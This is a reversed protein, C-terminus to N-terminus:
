ERNCVPRAGWRTAYEWLLKREFYRIFLSRLLADPMKVGFVAVFLHESDPGFHERYSLGGTHGSKRRFAARKFQRLRKDLRSCTEGIYIVGQLLPNARAKPVRRPDEFRALAYVGPLALGPLSGRREWPHWKSFRVVPATRKPMTRPEEVTSVTPELAVSAAGVRIKASSIGGRVATL